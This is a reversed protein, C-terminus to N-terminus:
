SLHELNLAVLHVVGGCETGLFVDAADAEMEKRLTLFTLGFEVLIHRKLFLPSLGWARGFM